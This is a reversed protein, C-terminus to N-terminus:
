EQPFPAQIRLKTRITQSYHPASFYVRWMTLSQQFWLKDDSTLSLKAISDQSYGYSDPYSGYSGVDWFDGIQLTNINDFFFSKKYEKWNYNTYTLEFEM